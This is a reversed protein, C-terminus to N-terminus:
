RTVVFKAVLNQVSIEAGLVPLPKLRVDSNFTLIPNGYELSATIDSNRQNFNFFLKLMYIPRTADKINCTIQSEALKSM